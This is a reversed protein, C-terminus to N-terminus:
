LKKKKKIKEIYVTFSIQLMYKGKVFLRIFIKKLLFFMFFPFVVHPSQRLNMM